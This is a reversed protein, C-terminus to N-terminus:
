GPGADTALVAWFRDGSATHIEGSRWTIGEGMDRAEARVDASGLTFIETGGSWGLEVTSGKLAPRHDKRIYPALVDDMAEGAERSTGQVVRAFRYTRLSLDRVPVDEVSIVTGTEDVTIRKPV